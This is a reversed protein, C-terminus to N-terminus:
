LLGQVCQLAAARILLRCCRWLTGGGHRLICQVHLLERRADSLKLATHLACLQLAELDTTQQLALYHTVTHQRANCCHTTCHAAAIEPRNCPPTTRQLTNNCLV